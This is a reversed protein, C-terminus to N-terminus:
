CSCSSPPPAEPQEIGIVLGGGGGPGRLVDKNKSANAQHSELM